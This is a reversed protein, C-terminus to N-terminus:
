SGGNLLIALEKKKKSLGYEELFDEFSPLNNQISDKRYTMFIEPLLNENIYNRVNECNM